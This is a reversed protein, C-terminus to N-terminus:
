LARQQTVRATDDTPTDVMRGSWVLMGGVEIKIPTYAALDPWVARTDRYLNFSAKDSGWSNSSMDLSNYDPQIGAMRDAGFTEWLGGLIQVRISVDDGAM